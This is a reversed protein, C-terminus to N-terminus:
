GSLDLGGGIQFAFGLALLLIGERSISDYWRAKKIENEDTGELLLAGTGSRSVEPPLGFKFILVAGLIDLSLGATILGESLM